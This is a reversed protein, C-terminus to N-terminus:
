RPAVLLTQLATGSNVAEIFGRYVDAAGNDPSAGAASM